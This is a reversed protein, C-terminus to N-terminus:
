ASATTLAMPPRVSPSWDGTVIAAYESPANVAGSTHCRTGARCTM